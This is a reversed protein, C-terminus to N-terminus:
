SKVQNKLFSFDSLRHFLLGLYEKLATSTRMLAVSNPLLDVWIFPPTGTALFQSPFPIVPVGSQRFMLVSRRMHYASTVLLPKRFGRRKMIEKCYIANEKTDRSSSELILDAQAVGLDTLFRMIVPAEPARGAYGSGGSIIIPAKTHRNLRAATVMRALMNEGPAGRGTMDPVGEYIGGGMLIIVDGGPNFPIELGAELRALLAGSVPGISASWLLIAIAINLLAWRKLNRRWLMIGVALLILIFLGPPLLFPTILKKLVFM